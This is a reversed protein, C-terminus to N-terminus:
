SAFSQPETDPLFIFFPVCWQSIHFVILFYLLVDCVGVRCCGLSHQKDRPVPLLLSQSLSLRGTAGEGPWGGQCGTSTQPLSIADVTFLKTFEQEPLCLNLPIVLQSPRIGPPLWLLQTCDCTEVCLLGARMLWITITTVTFVHFCNQDPFVLLVLSSWVWMKVTSIAFQKGVCGKREAGWPMNYHKLRSGGKYFIRKESM